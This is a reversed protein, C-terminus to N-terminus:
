HPWHSIAAMEEAKELENTMISIIMVAAMIWRMATRRQKKASTARILAVSAAERVNNINVFTYM